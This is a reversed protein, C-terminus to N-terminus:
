HEIAILRAVRREYEFLDIKGEIYAQQLREMPNQVVQRIRPNKHSFHRVLIYAPIGIALGIAALSIVAVLVALLLSVLIIGLVLILLFQM